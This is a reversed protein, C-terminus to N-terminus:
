NLKAHLVIIGSTQGSRINSINEFFGVQDIAAPYLSALAISREEDWDVFNNTRQFSLNTGDNVIRIMLPVGNGGERTSDNFDNRGAYVTPSSWCYSNITWYLANVQWAMSQIRGTGSDRFFIGFNGNCGTGLRPIVALTMTWPTAPATAYRGRLNEGTSQTGTWILSVCNDSTDLTESGQNMWNTFTSVPPEFPGMGHAWCQWVSGSDRWLFGGDTPFFLRGAVGAAPRNANTDALATLLTLSAATIVLSCVALDAHLVATTGEIGRTVTFNAGTVSTVLMLESDVLIRFNGTTPFAAASTVAVTTTSNNVGGNLTTQANNNLKETAM